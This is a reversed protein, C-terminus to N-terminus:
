QLSKPIGTMKRKEARKEVRSPGFKKSWNDGSIGLVGYTKALIRMNTDNTLLVVPIADTGQAEGDGLMVAINIIVNDIGGELGAKYNSINERYFGPQQIRNGRSTIIRLNPNNNTAADNIAYLAQKAQHGVSAEENRSIGLLEIVVPNPVVVVWDGSRLIHDFIRLNSLLFNTDVVVTTKNKCINDISKPLGVESVASPYDAETEHSKLRQLRSELDRHQQLLAKIHEPATQIDEPKSASGLVGALEDGMDSFSASDTLPTAPTM